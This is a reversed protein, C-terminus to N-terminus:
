RNENYRDTYIKIYNKHKGIFQVYNNFQAIDKFHEKCKHKPISKFDNFIDYGKELWQESQMQHISEVKIM